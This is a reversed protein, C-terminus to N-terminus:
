FLVNDIVKTKYTLTPSSIYKDTFNSNFQNSNKTFNKSISDVASNYFSKDSYYYITQRLKSEEEDNKLEKKINQSRINNLHSLVKYYKNRESLLQKEVKEYQDDDQNYTQLSVKLKQILTKSRNIKSILSGERAATLNQMFDLDAGTNNINSM